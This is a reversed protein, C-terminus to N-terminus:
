QAFQEVLTTLQINTLKASPVNVVYKINYRIYCMLFTKTVNRLKRQMDAM